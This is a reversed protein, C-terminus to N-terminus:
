TCKKLYKFVILVDSGHPYPNYPKKDVTINRIGLVAGVWCM